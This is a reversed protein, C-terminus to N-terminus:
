DVALKRFSGIAGGGIDELMAHRSYTESHDLDIDMEDLALLRDRYLECQERFAKMHESKPIKGGYEKPLIQRDFHEKTLEDFDRFVAFRKRIKESLFGVMANVFWMAVPPVNVAYLGQCRLPLGNNVFQAWQKIALLSILSQHALTVHQMDFIMFGGTCQVFPDDSYTEALLIHMRNSHEITYQKPDLLGWDTMTVICGDATRELLPYIFGIDALHSLEPDRIDLRQFWSPHIMRAALYRELTQSAMLFSHKKARLFRLLFRADTRCRRIHPHKAIWDRMQKLNQELVLPDERLKEFIEVINALGKPEEADDDYLEPVKQLSPVPLPKQESRSM